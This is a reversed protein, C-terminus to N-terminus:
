KTVTVSLPVTKLVGHDVLQIWFRYDGPGPFTTHLMGADPAGGAMPHVHILADGDAPVAIVHALAGLYPTIVPAQGDERTVKYDIMVMKEAQLTQASLEVITGLHSAKRHDGLSTIPWSPKGNEVQAPIDATFETGDTLAGQAWIFYKGNVPLDLEATWLTGNFLPHVHIFETLSSDFAFLHVKKTHSEILDDPGLSKKTQDDFLQFSYQIKGATYVGQADPEISIRSEGDGHAWTQGTGLFVLLGCILGKM